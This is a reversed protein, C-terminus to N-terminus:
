PSPDSLSNDSSRLQIKFARAQAAWSFLDNYTLFTQEEIGNTYSYGFLKLGIKDDKIADSPKMLLWKLYRSFNEASLGISQINEKLYSEAEHHQGESSLDKVADCLALVEKCCVLSRYVGMECRLNSLRQKVGWAVFHAQDHLAKFSPSEILRACLTCASQKVAESKLTHKASKFEILFFHEGVAFFEDANLKRDAANVPANMDVQGMSQCASRLNKRFREIVSDEVGEM